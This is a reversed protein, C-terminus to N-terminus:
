RQRRPWSALAKAAAIGFAVACVSSILSPLIIDSAAASGAAERLAIVTTPLLQISSCNIVLLMCMDDTATAAGSASKKMEGIAELGAPTAANGVGLMNAAMNLAIARSAKSGAPVSPYLFRLPRALARAFRGALGSDAIVEMIGCWLAYVALLTIFLKVAGSAGDMAAGFILDLKGTAAACAISVLMMGAWLWNMM